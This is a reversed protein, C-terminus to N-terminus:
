HGASHRKALTQAAYFSRAQSDIKGGNCRSWELFEDPDIVIKEALTGSKQLEAIATETRKLWHDYDPQFNPDIALWRPWDEKHFWAVAMGIFPMTKHGGADRRM